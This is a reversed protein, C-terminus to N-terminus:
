ELVLEIHQKVKKGFEKAGANESNQIKEIRFFPFRIQEFQINVCVVLAVRRPNIHNDAIHFFFETRDAKKVFGNAREFNLVLWNFQFASGPGFGIRIKNFARHQWFFGYLRTENVISVVIFHASVPYVVNQRLRIIM